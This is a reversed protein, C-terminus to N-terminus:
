ESEESGSLPQPQDDFFNEQLGSLAAIFLNCIQGDDMGEVALYDYMGQATSIKYIADTYEQLTDKDFVEDNKADIVLQEKVKRLILERTLPKPSTLEEYEDEPIIVVNGGRTANIQKVGTIGSITEYVQGSDKTVLLKM